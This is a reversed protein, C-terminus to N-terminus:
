LVDREFLIKGQDEIAPSEDGLLRFSGSGQRHPALNELGALLVM